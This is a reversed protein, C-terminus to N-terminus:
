AKYPTIGELRTSPERMVLYNVTKVIEPWLNKLLGASSITTRTREGIERNLRENVPNQEPSDRTTPKNDIGCDKFYKDFVTSIYERSNDFRFRRIKRNDRKHKAKFQRFNEFVESKRAIPYVESMRSFDDRFLVYYRAKNFRNPSIPGTIDSYILDLRVESPKISGKYPRFTLKGSACYYYYAEADAYYNDDERKRKLTIGKSIKALKAINQPGLYRLRAYWILMDTPM